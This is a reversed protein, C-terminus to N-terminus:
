TTFVLFWGKEIPVSRHVSEFATQEPAQAGDSWLYGITNDIGFTYQPFFVWGSGDETKGILVRGKEAWELQSPTQSSEGPKLRSIEARLRERENSLPTRIESFRAIWDEDRPKQALYTASAFGVAVIPIVLLRSKKTILSAIVAGIMALFGVGLLPLAAPLFSDNGDRRGLILIGSYASAWGYATAGAFALIPLAIQARPLRPM